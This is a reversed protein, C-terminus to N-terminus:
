GPACIQQEAQRLQEDAKKEQQSQPAPRSKLFLKIQDCARQRDAPSSSGTVTTSFSGSSGTPASREQVQDAPPPRVDVAIGFDDYAVTVQVTGLGEATSESTVLRIRGDSDADVTADVTSPSAQVGFSTGFADSPLRLV